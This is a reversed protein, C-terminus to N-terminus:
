VENAFGPGGQNSHTGWESFQAWYHHLADQDKFLRDRKQREFSDRDASYEGKGKDKDLWVEALAPNQLIRMGQVGYEIAGRMLDASEGICGSLGLEFSVRTRLFAGMFLSLPLPVNADIVQYLDRLEREWISDLLEIGTWIQSLAQMTAFRNQRKVRIYERYPAHLVLKEFPLLLDDEKVEEM